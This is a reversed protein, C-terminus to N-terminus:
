RRGRYQAESKQDDVSFGDVAAIRLNLPCNFDCAGRPSLRAARLDACSRPNAATLSAALKNTSDVALMM